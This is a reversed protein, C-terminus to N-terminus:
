TRVRRFLAAAYVCALAAALGFWTLAYEFHRNPIEAPLPAPTLAKFEPSTATEAFLFLPAPAPARLAAAMAPIDRVFWRGPRNKVAFLSPRDPKRLIGTVQTPSSDVPAVKPREAVDDPVFGRDVLLTRYRAGNVPCASILRAGAQGNPGITYLELFPAHALGACAASVRTFDADRGEGVADLVPDVAVAQSTQLAAVHALIAEKWKLRQLQWVGLGILIAMAIATALTLGVPFRGRPPAETM